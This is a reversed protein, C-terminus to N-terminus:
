FINKLIDEIKFRGPRDGFSCAGATMCPLGTLDGFRSNSHDLITWGNLAKIDSTNKPWKGM